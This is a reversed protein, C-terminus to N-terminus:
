DINTLSAIQQLRHIFSVREQLISQVALAASTPWKEIVAHQEPPIIQIEDAATRLELISLQCAAALNEIRSERQSPDPRQWHFQGILFVGIQIGKDLIPTGLYDLGFQCTFRHLGQRANAAMEQFSTSNLNQGAATATLLSYYHSPRSVRTILNGEMDILVSSIRAVESFLDQVAQICHVPLTSPNEALPNEVPPAAFGLLRDIEQQPFRWQQGIKVGKLRGDQLMRYITIRDVKLIEQVQRATLLDTM